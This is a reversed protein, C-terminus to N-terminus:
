VGKQNLIDVNLGSTRRGQRRRVRHRSTSRSHHSHRRGGGRRGHCVFANQRRNQFLLQEPYREPNFEHFQLWLTLM